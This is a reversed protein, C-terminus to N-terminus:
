LRLLRRILADRARIPVFRAVFAQARADRGVLYRPRPRRSTLAHEIVEAVKVPPIGVREQYDILRRATELVRGYRELAEAPLETTLEDTKQRGKDWIETKVSGPEILSVHIGFSRLEGRLSDAIAAVAFKSSNYPAIFPTSMRGGISGVFVIRGTAKRILPLLARTVDVQGHVNVDFQRRWEDGSLYEVPGGRGIGANNVLGALGADGLAHAIEQTAQEIQLQDTVDLILSTINRDRASLREADADQRVGAFVRHGHQALLVATAEGIGSSAGTVLVAGQNM